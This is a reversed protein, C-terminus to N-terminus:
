SLLLVLHSQSQMLLFSSHLTNHNENTLTTPFMETLTKWRVATYSAAQPELFNFFVILDRQNLFLVTSHHTCYHVRDIILNPKMLELLEEMHLNTVDCSTWWMNLLAPQVIVDLQLNQVCDQPLIKTKIMYSVISFQTTNQGMGLMTIQGKGLGLVPFADKQSEPWDEGQRTGM